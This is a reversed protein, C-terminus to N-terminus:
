TKTHGVANNHWIKTDQPVEYFSLEKSQIKLMLQEYVSYM